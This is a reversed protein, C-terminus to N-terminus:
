CLVHLGQELGAHAVEAHASPPTAIDIFDLCSREASLLARHDAYVRIGPFHRRALERREESLDAVAVIEVDDSTKGRERYAAAHGKEMIFGYGILAGRLKKTTSTM